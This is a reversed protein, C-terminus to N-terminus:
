MDYLVLRTIIILLNQVLKDASEAPHEFWQVHMALPSDTSISCQNMNIQASCINVNAMTSQLSSIDCCVSPGSSNSLLSAIFLGLPPSRQPLASLYDVGRCYAFPLLIASRALETGPMSRMLFQTLMNAAMTSACKNDAGPLVGTMMLLPTGCPTNYMRAGRM